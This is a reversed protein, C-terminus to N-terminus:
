TIEDLGKGGPFGAGKLLERSKDPNYWYGKLSDTFSPMGKPIFGQLASTGISNRLHKVIKDRDIAYGIAQRVAKIRLPSKKVISSDMDVLFGLYDTKLYSGIQMNFKGSYEPKLKGEKDILLDINVMDAGSLMDADGKEFDIFANQKDKIFNVTVGDLYPLKENGEKEFYNENKVLVLKVGEEWAKFMFPGTGVPNRRFDTGFHNAIENPIVSCYQMTLINLFPPFPNQLYIVFTSDDPAAFGLNDSRVDRAINSFLYKASQEEDMDMLRFLSLVFDQAVVKRGKGNPFLPHDHFFVDKRLHFTYVKGSDTIEWSKAICPVVELKENLQVLGNFIQNVAWINEVTKASAPDLSTIAGSENYRFFKKHADNGSPGCASLLFYFTFLLSSFSLCSFKKM